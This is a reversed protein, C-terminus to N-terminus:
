GAPVSRDHFIHDQGLHIQDASAFHILELDEHPDVPVSEFWYKYGRPILIGEDPGLEAVIDDNSNYFRARGFKVFWFGDQHAHSHLRNEGGQHFVQIELSALDSKVLPIRAKKDGVVMPRQYSFVTPEASNAGENTNRVDSKTKM